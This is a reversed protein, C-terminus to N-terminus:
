KLMRSFFMLFQLTTVKLSTKWYFACYYDRNKIPGLNGYRLIAVIIFLITPVLIELLTALWHRKKLVASKWLVTAFKKGLGMNIAATAAAAARSPASTPFYRKTM